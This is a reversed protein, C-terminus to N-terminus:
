LLLLSLQMRVLAVFIATLLAVFVTRTPAVFFAILLAVFTTRNPAIVITPTLVIADKHSLIAVAVHSLANFIPQTALM